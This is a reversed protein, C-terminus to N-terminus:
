DSFKKPLRNGQYKVSVNMIDVVGTVGMIM